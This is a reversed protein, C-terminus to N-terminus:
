DRLLENIATKSRTQADVTKVIVACYLSPRPAAGPTKPGREDGSLERGGDHEYDAGSQQQATEPVDKAHLRPVRAVVHHDGGDFQRSLVVVGRRERLEVAIEERPEAAATANAGRSASVPLKM